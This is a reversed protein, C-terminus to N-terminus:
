TLEGRSGENLLAMKAFLNPQLNPFVQVRCLTHGLVIGLQQYLWGLKAKLKALTNTCRVVYM